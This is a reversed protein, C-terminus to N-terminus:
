NMNPQLLSVSFSIMWILLPYIVLREMTGKALGLITTTSEAPLGLYPFFFILLALTVLGIVISIYSFPHNLMKFSVIPLSVAFIFAFATVYGHMPRSDEPFVGVGIIFIGTILLLSTLLKVGLTKYLIISSVVLSLGFVIISLNYALATTGVGLSSVYHLSSNYGPQFNESILIMMLWQVSGVFIILGASGNSFIKIIISV